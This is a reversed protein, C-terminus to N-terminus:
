VRDWPIAFAILLLAALCFRWTAKHKSRDNQMKRVRAHCLILLVLALNMLLFHEVLWFRLDSDKMSPGINRIAIKTIPSLWFYLALGTLLQIHGLVSLVRMLLADSRRFPLGKFFKVLASAVVWVLLLLLLWRFGSHAELFIKYM